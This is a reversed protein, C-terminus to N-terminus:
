PAPEPNHRLPKSEVHGVMAAAAGASSPAFGGIPPRFPEAAHLTADEAAYDEDIAIAQAPAICRLFVFWGLGEVVAPLAPAVVPDEGPDHHAQGGFAGFVLGDHDICGVELCVARRRAQAHFLPRPSWILRVLPPIFVLSCATASALPRGLRNKM